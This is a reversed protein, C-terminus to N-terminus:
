PGRNVSLFGMVSAQALIKMTVVVRFTERCTCSAHCYWCKPWRSVLNRSANGGGFTSYGCVVLSRVLQSLDDRQKALTTLRLTEFPLGAQLDVESYVFCHFPRCLM